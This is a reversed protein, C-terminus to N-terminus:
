KKMHQETEQLKKLEQEFDKRLQLVVVCCVSPPICVCLVVTLALPLPLIIHAVTDVFLAGSWVLGWPELM